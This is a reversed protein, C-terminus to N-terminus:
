VPALKVNFSVPGFFDTRWIDGHTLDKLHGNDDDLMWKFGKTRQLIRSTILFLNALALKEGM